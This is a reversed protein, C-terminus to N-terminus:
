KTPCYELSIVGDAVLDQMYHTDLEIHKTIHHVLNYALQIESHNDCRLYIPSIHILGLEILSCQIWQHLLM